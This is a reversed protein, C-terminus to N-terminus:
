SFYLIAFIVRLVYSFAMGPSKHLLCSYKIKVTYRFFLQNLLLVELKLIKSPAAASFHGGVSSNEIKKGLVCINLKDKILV